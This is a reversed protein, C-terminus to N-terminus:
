KEPLELEVGSKTEGAAVSVRMARKWPEAPRQWDEDYAKQYARFRKEEEPTRKWNGTFCEESPYPNRMRVEDDQYGDHGVKLGYEGPPLGRLEFTGDAGLMAEAWYGQANFAVVAARGALGGPVKTVRGRITGGQVAALDVESRESAKFRYPGALTPPSGPMFLALRWEDRSEPVRLTYRGAEVPCEAVVQMPMAVTRGRKVFGALAITEEPVRYLVVWGETVPKNARLVRGTVTVTPARELRLTVGNVEGVALKGLAVEADRYGAATARLTCEKGYFPEPQCLFEPCHMLQFSGDGQQVFEDNGVDDSELKPRYDMGDEDKAAQPPMLLVRSLKVPEGTAADVARCRIIGAKALVIPESPVRLDWFGVTYGEKYVRGSGHQRPGVGELVYKGQSDTTAEHTRGTEGRHVMRAGAIPKGQSDQVTYTHRAPPPPPSPATLRYTGLDEPAAHTLAFGHFGDPGPWGQAHVALSIDGGTLPPTRYRGEHDTTAVYSAGLYKVAPVGSLRLQSTVEIRAGAAPSGDLKLIRGHFTRGRILRIEGLDNERSPYIVPVALYARAFGEAEAYLFQYPRYGAPQPGSRFRGRSDTFVPATPRCKEDERFVKANAVPRGEEDLVTGTLRGDPAANLQHDSAPQQSFQPEPAAQADLPALGSSFVLVGLMAVCTVVVKHSLVRPWPIAQTADWFGATDDSRRASLVSRTLVSAANGNSERCLVPWLIAAFPYGRRRLRSAMKRKAAALRSSLTGPSVGLAIAAATRTVGRLGCLILPTRYIAPLRMLEEDLVQALDAEPRSSVKAPPEHALRALNHRRRDTSRLAVACRYATGHLWSALSGPRRIHRARRALTLFTAQAADESDHRDALVRRCVGLVLGYYRHVIQSFTDEDGDAIYRQLLAADQGSPDSNTVVRHSTPQQCM